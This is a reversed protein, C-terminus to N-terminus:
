KVNNKRKAWNREQCWFCEGCEPVLQNPIYNTYDLNDFDGECSRTLNFLNLINNNVYQKVIWDKETYIFPHIALKNNIEFILENIDVADVERDPMRKTITTDSPNKSKAAFIADLNEKHLIWEAYSRAIIQDGSKLKGYEDVITPGKNGYELDPPIFNEHRTFNINSFNAILWEFVRLSDYRQWPRTKWMRVHSIIHVDINSNTESIISCLLYSLLASDAGGSVSIGIRKWTPDFPIKLGDVKFNTIHSYKSDCYVKNVEEIM